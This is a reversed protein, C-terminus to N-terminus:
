GRRQDVVAVVADARRGRSRSRSGTGDQLARLIAVDGLLVRHFEDLVDDGVRHRQGEHGIAVVAQAPGFVESQEFRVM